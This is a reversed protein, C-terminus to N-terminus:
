TRVRFQQRPVAWELTPWLSCEWIITEMGKFWGPMTSHDEPFYLPQRTGDPLVADRMKPSDKHPKWGNSPNKPMKRASLADPARKQHSPANDFLFLGQAFGKTKGEFIDVAKEVEQLLNESSFYGDRQKGAKFVLHAEQDDDRLRGWEITLFDSIMISAGDSKPAITPDASIENWYNKRQDNCYFTSEDHTVLILRFPHGGPIPFGKPVSLVEGTESCYMVMRKKYEKWRAVFAKRYAVVDEREHGDIYMGKRAKGYQWGLHHLWQQASRLSISQKKINAAAIQAQMEPTTVFDVIDQARIYKKESQIGHLHLKIAQALDEQVLIVSKAQGYSHLPLKGDSLFQHIWQWIKRAHYVGHGQSKSAVLSAERWTLSAEPDLFPNLTATMATIRACFFVDLRPDKSRVSLEACARRLAPLDQYHNLTRDVETEESDDEPGKGERLNKLMEEVISRAERDTIKKSCSSKEHMSGSTNGIEEHELPAAPALDDSKRVNEADMPASSDNPDSDSDFDIKIVRTPTVSYSGGVDPSSSSVTVTKTKKLTMFENVGIFGSAEM